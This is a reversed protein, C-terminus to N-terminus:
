WNEEVENSKILEQPRYVLKWLYNKKIGSHKECVGRPYDEDGVAYEAPQGCNPESCLEGAFRSTRREFRYDDFSKLRGNFQMNEYGYRLNMEEQSMNELWKSRDDINM